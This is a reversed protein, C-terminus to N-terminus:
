EEFDEQSRKFGYFDGIKENINNIVDLPSVYGGPKAISSYM